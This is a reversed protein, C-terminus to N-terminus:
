FIFLCIFFHIYVSFYVDIANREVTAIQEDFQIDLKITNSCYDTTSSTTASTTIVTTTTPPGLLLLLLKNKIKIM